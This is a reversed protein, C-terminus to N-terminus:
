REGHEVPSTKSKRRNEDAGRRQKRALSASVRELALMPRLIPCHHHVERERPRANQLVAERTVVVGGGVREVGPIRVERVHLEGPDDCRRQSRCVAIAVVGGEEGFHQVDRISQNADKM